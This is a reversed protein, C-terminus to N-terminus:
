KKMKVWERQYGLARGTAEITENKPRKTQGFFWGRMCGVTPGGNKEIDGFMKSDVRRGYVDELLTQTMPIVPEKDRFRYSGYTRPTAKKAM